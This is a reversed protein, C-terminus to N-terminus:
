QNRQTPQVGSVVAGTSVDSVTVKSFMAGTSSDSVAVRSFMAGTSLDSGTVKSFLAGTSLDSCAIRSFMACASVDSVAVKAFLAGTLLDSGVSESLHWRGVGGVCRCEFVSCLVSCRDVCRNFDSSGRGRVGSGTSVKM